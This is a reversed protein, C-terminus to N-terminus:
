EKWGIWWNESGLLMEPMEDCLSRLKEQGEPIKVSVKWNSLGQLVHPSGHPRTLVNLGAKAPPKNM